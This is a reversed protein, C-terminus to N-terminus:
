KMRNGDTGSTYIGTQSGGSVPMERVGWATFVFYHHVKTAANRLAPKYGDGRARLNWPGWEIKSYKTARLADPHVQLSAARSVEKLQLNWTPVM